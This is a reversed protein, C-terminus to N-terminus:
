GSVCYDWRPSEGPLSLYFLVGGEAGKEQWVKGVKSPIFAPGVVGKGQRNTASLASIKSRRGAGM